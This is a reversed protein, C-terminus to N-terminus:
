GAAGATLGTLRGGTRQIHYEISLESTFVGYDADVGARSGDRDYDDEHTRRLWRTEIAGPHYIKLDKSWTANETM